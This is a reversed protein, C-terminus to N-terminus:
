KQKRQKLVQLAKELCLLKHSRRTPPSTNIKLRVEGDGGPKGGAVKM